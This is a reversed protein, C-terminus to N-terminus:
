TSKGENACRVEQFDNHFSRSRATDILDKQRLGWKGKSHITSSIHALSSKVDCDCSFPNGSIHVSRLARNANFWSEQYQRIENHSIDVFRLRRLCKFANPTVYKIGANRAEFARLNSPTSRSHSSSFTSMSIDGINTNNSLNIATLNSFPQLSIDEDIMNSCLSVVKVTHPLRPFMELKNKDAALMKLNILYELNGLTSLENRSVTIKQLSVPLLGPMKVLMNRGLILRELKKLSFFAGHDIVKLRNGGLNLFKLNRLQKIAPPVRELLNKHM